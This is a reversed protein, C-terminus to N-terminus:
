DSWNDPDDFEEQTIRYHVKNSIIDWLLHKSGFSPHLSRAKAIDVPNPCLWCMDMFYCTVVIPKSPDHLKRVRGVSLFHGENSQSM